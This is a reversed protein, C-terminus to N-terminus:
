QVSAGEAPQAACMVSQAGCRATSQKPSCVLGDDDADFTLLCDITFREALETDLTGATEVGRWMDIIQFSACADPALGRQMSDAPESPAVMARGHQMCATDIPSSATDGVRSPRRSLGRSHNVDPTATQFLPSAELERLVCRKAAAVQQWQELAAM